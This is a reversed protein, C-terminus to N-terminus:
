DITMEMHKKNKPCTYTIKTNGGYGCSDCGSSTYAYLDDNDTILHEEGCPCKIQIGILEPVPRRTM